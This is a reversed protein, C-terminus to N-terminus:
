GKVIRLLNPDSPSNNVDTVQFQPSNGTVKGDSLDNDGLQSFANDRISLLRDTLNPRSAVTFDWAEYLSKRSIKGKKKLAKFIHDYRKKQSKEAKPLKKGDRLKEFWSPADLKNGSA